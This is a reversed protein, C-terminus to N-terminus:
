ISEDSDEMYKSAVMGIASVLAAVLSVKGGYLFYLEVNAVMFFTNAYWLVQWTKKTYM